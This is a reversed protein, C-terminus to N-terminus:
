IVAIEAASFKNHPVIILTIGVHTNMFDLTCTIIWVRLGNTLVVNAILAIGL